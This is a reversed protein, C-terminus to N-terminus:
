MNELVSNLYKKSADLKNASDSYYSNMKEYYRYAKALANAAETRRKEARNKRKQAIKYDCRAAALEKGKTVDFADRPDCKAIGKVTKGAYTSVAIINNKNDTYYKYKNFM